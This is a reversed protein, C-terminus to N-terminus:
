IGRRHCNDAAIGPPRCRCLLTADHMADNGGSIDSPRAAAVDPRLCAARRGRAVMASIWSKRDNGARRGNWHISVFTRVDELPSLSTTRTPRGSAGRRSGGSTRRRDAQSDALSVNIDQSTRHASLFTQNKLQHRRDRSPRRRPERRFDRSRLLPTGRAAARAVDAIGSTAFGRPPASTRTVVLDPRNTRAANTTRELLRSM